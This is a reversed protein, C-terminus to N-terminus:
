EVSSRTASMTSATSTTAPPAVARAQFSELYPWWDSNPIDDELNLRLVLNYWSGGRAFIMEWVYDKRNKGSWVLAPQGQFTFDRYNMSKFKALDPPERFVGIFMKQTLGVQKKPQIDMTMRYNKDAAGYHIIPEWDPPAIISFQNNATRIRNEERPAPLGAMMYLVIVFGAVVATAALVRIAPGSLSIRKM